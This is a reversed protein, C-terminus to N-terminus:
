FSLKLGLQLIRPRAAASVEGNGINQDGNCPAGPATTGSCSFNIASWQPHNFTNYSEARFQLTSRERKFWPLSINKMLALDWNNRGPGTLPYKGMYGFMGPQNNASLQDVTVQGLLGPDFWTPTPGFQPDNVTGKKVGLPGLSNCGTPGGIGTSLGDIGCTVGLPTGTMFSSIGSIQWGGLAYRAFPNQAQKFFPLEYVYNLILIQAQNLGGTGYWRNLHEDDIGNTGGSNASGGQFMNDLEHSWTYAAQFSLGYGFTHRFNVQLSNYNSNGTMQRQAIGAYGRYPVFFVSPELNNILIQQVNCNGQADCGQTGALAPVNKIGSGVPVQNINVNQQLHHGLTGVYSLSLINNGRFQHQVGFNFQQIEQWKALNVNSFSAPGLPGPAVNEYGVINYGFLNTATPPNGNFGAGNQLPNGSDWTLAYGGRIVTTGNGIPDWSFGFRPSVTGRYPNYCGEPIGGSGCQVLGNGYDLYNAGSGPILNGNSDLQAQKAPNYMSPVFLSDNTPTVTDHFATLWSYRLGLNLTLHPTVRWDDQVYPEFDWQRWHGLAADGLLQGNVVRGYEQYNAILGLYMDALANGSSISSGNGPGFSLFGQTNYGINTTTNIHNYLLFFGTKTTHRGHTWILNDKIAPQPDWFFFEFGTSEAFDVPVGGSLSIGPLKPQSQNAPFISKMSFGAPKDISGAPSDFGTFNNVKNVDASFSAIFENLLDPRIAQTLHFVSSKAPSSWKSKVTGFNAASWLTPVYDADFADQTYRFFARINDTINYDIKFMDDRFSTPLSPAATYFNVGNNPLPVLANLLAQGTVNVPVIDNQFPLTTAPNLPVQCGSAVIPNYNASKSDCESFDGQRMRLTPVNQNIVTGERNERWEESVFFFLKNKDTNFHKPIFIPGGLTFGWNNRKLPTQPASQGNPEITRNIFWDNADFVDNRVFEFMTGHFDKTGSKTVVEINAGGSKGYEASYNATSVRFEAISDVSPYTMISGSGSGQDINNTGDVEWNQINVPLGNFSIAANALVGVHSPDFGSGLTAAGPVLTALNAFNRANLNLQSVQSGTVVDSIAATETEVRPVNSNVLVEQSVSGIQLTMDIRVTQGVQLTIGSRVLRQFSTKEVTIVYNGIPVRPATYEGSSDSVVRRTFGRDANSVSVSVDPVVGGSPDTIAGVINALDQANAHLCAWFFMAGTVAILRRV